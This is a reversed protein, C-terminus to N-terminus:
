VSLPVMLPGTAIDRGFVQEMLKQTLAIAFRVFCSGKLTLPLRMRGKRYRTGSFLFDSLRAMAAFATNGHLIRLLFLHVKTVPDDDLQEGFTRSKDAIAFLGFNIGTGVSIPRRDVRTSLQRCGISVREDGERCGFIRLKAGAALRRFGDFIARRDVPTSM